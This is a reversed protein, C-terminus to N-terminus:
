GATGITKASERLSASSHVYRKRAAAETCWAGGMVAGSGPCVHLPRPADRRGTAGLVHERGSRDRRLQRHRPSLVSNTTYSGPIRDWGPRGARTRAIREYRKVALNPVYTVGLVVSRERRTCRRGRTAPPNLCVVWVGGIALAVAVRILGAARGVAWGVAAVAAVVLVVLGWVSVGASAFLLVAFLWGVFLLSALVGVGHAIAVQRLGTAMRRGGGGRYTTM